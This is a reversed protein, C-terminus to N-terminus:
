GARRQRLAAGRECEILSAFARRQDRPLALIEAHSWGYRSAILHTERVLFARENALAALLFRPLDFALKQDVGCHPCQADLDLSLLPAARELFGLTEDLAEPVVPPVCIAALLEAQDARATDGLRPVRVERDGLRWYGAADHLGVSQAELDQAKTLEDISFVFEFGERCDRCTARCEASEGVETRFVEALLRDHIPAPLASIDITEGEPGSLLAALLCTAEGAREPALAAEMDGTVRRLLFSAPAISPISVTVARHM